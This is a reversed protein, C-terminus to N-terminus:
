RARVSELLGKLLTELQSWGVHLCGGHGAGEVVHLKQGVRAAALREGHAIPILADDGAHVLVVKTSLPLAALSDRPSVDELDVGLQLWAAFRVSAAALHRLPGLGAMREELMISLDAFASETFVGDARAAAAARLASAGGMSIGILVLPSNAFQPQARIWQSAAVVDGAERGGLTTIAGESQGHGRFDFALVHCQQMWAMQAYAFFNARNAGLGHCVIVIPRPLPPEVAPQASENEPQTLLTGRLLLGDANEFEVERHAGEAFYVNPQKGIAVRRTQLAVFLQPMGVGIMVVAAVVRTLLPKKCTRELGWQLGHYIIRLSLVWIGMYLGFGIAQGWPVAAELLSAMSVVLLAAIGLTGILIAPMEVFLQRRRRIASLRLTLPGHLLLVLCLVVDVASEALFLFVAALVTPLCAIVVATRGPPSDGASAEDNM